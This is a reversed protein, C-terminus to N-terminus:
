IRFDILLVWGQTLFDTESPSGARPGLTAPRNSIRTAPHRNPSSVSPIFRSPFVV